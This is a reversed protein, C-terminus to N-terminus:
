IDPEAGPFRDDAPEAEPASDPYRDELVKDEYTERISDRHEQMTESVRERIDFEIEETSVDTQFRIGNPKPYKDQLEPPITGKDILVVLQQIIGEVSGGGTTAIDSPRGLILNQLEGREMMLRIHLSNTSQELQKVLEQNESKRAEELLKTKEKLEDELQLIFLLHDGLGPLYKDIKKLEEHTGQSIGARQSTPKPIPGSGVQPPAPPSPLPYQQKPPAPMQGGEIQGSAPPILRARPMFVGEPNMLIDAPSVMPVRYSGYLDDVWIISEPGTKFLGGELGGLTVCLYVGQQIEYITDQIYNKNEETEVVTQFLELTEVQEDLTKLLRNFKNVLREREKASKAKELEETLPSFQKMLEIAADQVSNVVSTVPFELDGFTFLVVEEESAKRHNPCHQQAYATVSFFAIFSFIYFFVIAIRRKHRAFYNRM